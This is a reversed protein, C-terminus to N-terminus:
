DKRDRRESVSLGDEIDYWTTAFHEHHELYNRFEELRKRITKYRKDDPKARFWVNDCLIVGRESLLREAGQFYRLYQAKAADIFILDYRKPATSGSNDASARELWEVADSEVVEIQTRYVSSAIHARSAEIMNPNKEITTIRPTTYKAMEEAMALASYGIATGLELIRAPRQQRIMTLVLELTEPRVIPIRHEQAYAELAGRMETFSARM